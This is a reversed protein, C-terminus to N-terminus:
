QGQLVRILKGLMVFDEANDYIVLATGGADNIRQLERDQLATTRGKGAKCEISLFRGNVCCVIDPIGARGYGGGFPMFYYVDQAALIALTRKKTKAEPTM